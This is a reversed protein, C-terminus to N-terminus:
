PADVKLRRVDISIRYKMPNTPEVPDIPQIIFPVNNPVCAM